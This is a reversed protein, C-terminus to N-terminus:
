YKYHFCSSQTTQKRTWPLWLLDQTWHYQRPTNGTVGNLSSETALPKAYLHTKTEEQNPGIWRQPSPLRHLRVGEGWLLLQSDHIPPSFRHTNDELKWLITGQVINQAQSSGGFGGRVVQRNPDTQHILDDIRHLMITARCRNDIGIALQMPTQISYSEKQLMVQKTSMAIASIALLTFACKNLGTSKEHAKSCNISNAEHEAFEWWKDVITVDLRKQM